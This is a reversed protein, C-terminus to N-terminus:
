THSLSPILCWGKPSGTIEITKDRSLAGKVISICLRKVKFHASLAEIVAENAKGEIAKERVKVRYIADGLREVSESKSNPVVRVKIIM